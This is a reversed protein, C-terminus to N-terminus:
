RMKPIYEGDDDDDDDGDDDDDDADDEDNANDYDNDKTNQDGEELSKWGTHSALSAPPADTHHPPAVDPLTPVFLCFFFIRVCIRHFVSM